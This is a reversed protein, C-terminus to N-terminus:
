LSRAFSGGGVIREAHPAVRRRLGRDSTVVWLSGGVHATAVAAIEDDASRAGEFVIRVEHGEREGWARARVVLEDRSV